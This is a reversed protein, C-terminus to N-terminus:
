KMKLVTIQNSTLSTLASVAQTLQLKIEPDGGGECVILAGRFLPYDTRTVMPEDYSSGKSIIVAKEQEEKLSEGEKTETRLDRDYLYHVEEGQELTLAVQVRGVGQIQSLLSVLKEEMEREYQFLLSSSEGESATPVAEEKPTGEAGPLLLLGMGIVLVLLGYKYKKGAALAGSVWQTVKNM